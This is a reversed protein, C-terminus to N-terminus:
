GQLCDTRKAFYGGHIVRGDKLTIKAPSFAFGMSLKLHYNTEKDISSWSRLQYCGLEAALRLAEGQLRRGIGRRQFTESVRFTQVFLERLPIGSDKLVEDDTLCLPQELLAIHGVIQRGYEATIVQLGPLWGEENRVYRLYNFRDLHAELATPFRHKHTRYRIM